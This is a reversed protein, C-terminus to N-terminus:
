LKPEVTLPVVKGRIKSMEVLIRPSIGVVHFICRSIIKEASRGRSRGTNGKVEGQRIAEREEGRGGRREREVEQKEIKM